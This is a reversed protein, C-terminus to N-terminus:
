AASWGPMLDRLAQSNAAVYARAAREGEGTLIYYRRRRRGEAQEDVDEWRDRIWGAGLFRQLIPYLSGPKVGCAHSLQYGWLEHAPMDLFAQLVLRGQHSVRM